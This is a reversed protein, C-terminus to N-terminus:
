SLLLVEIKKEENKKERSLGLAMLKTDDFAM